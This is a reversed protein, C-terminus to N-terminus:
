NWRNPCACLRSACTGIRELDARFANPFEVFRSVTRSPAEATFIHPRISVDPPVFRHIV